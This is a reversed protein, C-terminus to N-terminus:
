LIRMRSDSPTLIECGTETVVINEEIGLNGINIDTLNPEISFTMGPRLETNDNIEFMPYEHIGCGISHGFGGNYPNKEAYKSNNLYQEIKNAAESITVGPKVNDIGIYCAERAVNFMDLQEDSPKGIVAQRIIDSYYGKYIPGGDVLIIDGKMIPRESPTGNSQPIRDMGARVGIPLSFEAGLRFYEQMISRYLDLETMGERLLSYGKDISKINIDCCKRFREIELPSKVRRVVWLADSIDVIEANELERFLEERQNHALHMKQGKGIEFGIRGNKIGRDELISVISKAYTKYQSDKGYYRFDEVCTTATAAGVGGKSSSIMMDGDKTIVLVGPTSVKSAWVISQFGSFYYTNEDSTLIVADVGYIDMQNVLKELRQEYESIPFELFLGKKM